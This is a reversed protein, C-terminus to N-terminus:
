KPFRLGTAASQPALPVVAEYGPEAEFKDSVPNLVYLRLENAAPRVKLIGFRGQGGEEKCQWNLFAQFVPNGHQGLDLRYSVNEEVHHGSFVALLNRHAKLSKQWVDEGDNAGTAGPYIKPNHDDGPKTREGFMYMYTHTVIIATHDANSRLVEDAWALAEDRPGFELALFLWKRGAIDLKAYSNEAKGEEFTGGFWPKARYRDAGFYKNFMTLSRDIKLMNDYDHNGPAILYPIGAADFLDFAERALRFQNEDKEGNHVVDGEHLIMKVKLRDANKAIWQAMTRFHAPHKATMIQTDPVIVVSFEDEAFGDTLIHERADNQLQEM